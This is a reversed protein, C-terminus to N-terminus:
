ASVADAFQFSVKPSACERLPHSRQTEADRHSTMVSEFTRRISIRGNVELASADDMQDPRVAERISAVSGSTQIVRKAPKWPATISRSAAFPCPSLAEMTASM